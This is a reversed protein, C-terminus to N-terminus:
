AARGPGGALLAAGRERLEVKRVKGSATMPFSDVVAVHRPIKYHALRGACYARLEAAGLPAAGGRLRIWAMIEEGYYPDPVGVVQADLIDPHTHLFEEIERPYVNEGGRIVLDKIRGTISVYGDADMVALDGTRMWGDADIAEATKDPQRWYGRMVSYGRTRFEGQRGRPVTKGTEPDVIKIEVHPGATGVTSVRRGLSDDPRTQCAVPSTETMGYCITVRAMHMRDIVQRMVEVPCPTGSMIGTRLSTLDFGDFGPDALEAIFMTPVGYLSTCREAEVAALTARADFFAAPIVVCAGHSLAAITGMVMGFCHFFPVPLCVRDAETYELLEGTFFGNNLINRHTLTAGKPLGTTGSTYQINVPDDPNLSAEVSALRRLGHPDPCALLARWQEGGILVTHRLSPCRPTVEEILGAADANRLVPAAILVQVGAHALVYELEHTRYAPNINVLIAGIKVAAYQTLVWDASNPAWLGVRDGPAVGLELLGVALADTRADLEAYSWRRGEGTRDVVADRGPFSAVTRSLQAGITEDLLALHHSGRAHSPLAAAACGVSPGTPTSADELELPNM